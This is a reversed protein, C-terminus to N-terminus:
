EVLTRTIESPDFELVSLGHYYRAHLPKFRFVSFDGGDVGGPYYMSWTDVWISSRVERDLIEEFAGQLTLGEFTEPDFYYLSGRADARLERVKRSSTNTAIWTAFALPLAAAGSTFISARMRRLNFLARTDPAGQADLTSLIALDVRNALTLASKIRPDSM